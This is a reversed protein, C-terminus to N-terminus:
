CCRTAIALASQIFGLTKHKSSGVLASSGSSVPSTSFTILSSLSSPLVIIMTVCSIPKALSTPLRTMNISWPLIASSFVGLSRKELGCFGLNFSNKDLTKIYFARSVFFGDAQSFRVNKIRRSFRKPRKKANPSRFLSNDPRTSASLLSKARSPFLM